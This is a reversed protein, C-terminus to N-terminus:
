NKYNIMKTGTLNISRRREFRFFLKANGKPLLEFKAETDNVGGVFTNNGQYALGGWFQGNWKWFLLDGDRYFEMISKDSMKYAGSIKHYVADDPVYEKKLVVDFNM